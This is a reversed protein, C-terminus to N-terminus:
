PVRMKDLAARVEANDPHRTLFEELVQRGMAQQGSSNYIMASNIFPRDFDPAVRRCQEFWGLAEQPKGMQLLVAGLDNMADSSNPQLRVATELEQRARPMAHQAVLAMGLALHLNANEPAKALLEELSKQADAPRGQYRYVRMMNEVALANNPNARTAAVFDKLAEDYNEQQGAIMGLNNWADADNPNLRVAKALSKVRGRRGV